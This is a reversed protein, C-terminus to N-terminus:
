CCTYQSLADLSSNHLDVWYRCWGARAGGLTLSAPGDLYLYWSLLNIKPFALDKAGVMIPILFNGLPWGHCRSKAGPVPVGDVIGHMPTGSKNYTDSALLDPQPTLLGRLRIVGAFAAALLSSCRSRTDPLMCRSASTLRGDAALEAPRAESSLCSRKPLRATAQTLCTRLIASFERQRVRM